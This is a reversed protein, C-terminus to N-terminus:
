IGVKKREQDFFVSRLSCKKFLNENYYTGNVYGTIDELLDKPAYCVYTDSKINIYQLLFKFIEKKDNDSLSNFLVKNDIKEKLHKPLRTWVGISVLQGYDIRQCVDNVLKLQPEKGDKLTRYSIGTKYMKKVINDINDRYSDSYPM